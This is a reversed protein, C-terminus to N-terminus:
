SLRWRQIAAVVESPDVVGYQVMADLRGFAETNEWSGLVEMTEADSSWAVTRLAYAIADAVVKKETGLAEMGPFETTGAKAVEAIIQQANM